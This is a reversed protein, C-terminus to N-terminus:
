VVQQGAFTLPTLPTSMRSMKRKRLRQNLPHMPWGPGGQLPAEASQFPLLTISRKSM